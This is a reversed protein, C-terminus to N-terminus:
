AILFIQQIQVGVKSFLKTRIAEGDRPNKSTKRQLIIFITILASGCFLWSVRKILNVM